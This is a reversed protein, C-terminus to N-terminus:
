KSAWVIMGLVVAILTTAILLTRLSFRKSWWPLWPIAAPTLSLLVVFWYPAQYTDRLADAYFAFGGLGKYRNTEYWDKLPGAWYEGHLEQSLHWIWPSGPISATLTLIVRSSASNVIILHKNSIPNYLEDWYWYSRIWLVVILAAVAGCGVSWVIRLKRFRM